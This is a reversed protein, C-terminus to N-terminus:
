VIKRKTIALRIKYYNSHDAKERCTYTGSDTVQPDTITLLELTGPIAICIIYM